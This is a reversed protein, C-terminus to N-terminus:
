PFSVALMCTCSGHLGTAAHWWLSTCCERWARLTHEGARGRGPRQPVAAASGPQRHQLAEWRHDGRRQWLPILDCCVACCGPFLTLPTLRQAPTLSPVTAARVGNTHWAPQSSSGRRLNTAPTLHAQHTTPGTSHAAQMRLWAQPVTAHTVPAYRHHQVARSAEWLCSRRLMGGRATLAPPGGATSTSSILQVPCCWADACPMCHLDSAHPQKPHRPAPAAALIQRSLVFCGCLVGVRGSAWKGM